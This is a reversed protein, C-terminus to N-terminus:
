NSTTHIKVIKATATAQYEVKNHGANSARTTVIPELAGDGGYDKIQDILRSIAVRRAFDEAMPMGANPHVESSLYGFNATGSFKTLFWTGNKDQNFTYSFEGDGSNIKLSNGGYNVTVSATETVAALIEYQGKQLNLGAAPIANATSIARPVIVNQSGKCSGLTFALVLSAVGLMAHKAKFM